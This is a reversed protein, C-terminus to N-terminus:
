ERDPGDNLLEQVLFDLELCQGNLRHAAFTVTNEANM